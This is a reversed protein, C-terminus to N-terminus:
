QNQPLLKRAQDRPVTLWKHPKPRRKVARPESRGPRMGVRHMTMARRQTMAWDRRRRGSRGAGEAQFALLTQLAGRFSLRRPTTECLRAAEALETRVLNYALLHAWIEKGVLEPTKCRLVEMRMEVKISRLDLEIHWRRLYLEAVEAKSFAAPDCLTTVLVLQKVRSGAEAVSVRLERLEIRSPIEEWTAQDMWAPPKPRDWFVVHDGPGLRRGRRFDVKRRQHMRFVADVGRQQLPAIGFYSSFFRDGLLIEGRRLRDWLRRLLATEGTEKGLYPGIALDSVVGTALSVLAVLRAIPFGLGPKQAPNQPFARQNAATDPMSVTTGDIIRVARGKFLWGPDAYDDLAQATQHVLRRLVGLPLRQRAKCYPGTEPACPAEGHAVLRAM